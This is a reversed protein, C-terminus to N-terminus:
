SQLDRRADQLLREILRRSTPFFRKELEIGDIEGNSLISSIEAKMVEDLQRAEDYGADILLGIEAMLNTLEETFRSARERTLTRPTGSSLGASFDMAAYFRMGEFRALASRLRDIRNTREDFLKVRAQLARDAAQSNLNARNTFYSVIAAALATLLPIGVAVILAQHAVVWDNATDLVSV